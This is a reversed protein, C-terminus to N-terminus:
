KTNASIQQQMSEFYSKDTSVLKLVDELHIEGTKETLNSYIQQMLRFDQITDVTFRMEKEPLVIQPSLWKIKYYDPNDYVFNTVHELYKAENTNNFIDTLTSLTILEAWFGFHTKISPKGNILFSVYDFSTENTENILQQMEKMDLFPNDSCIRIITKLKFKAAADIFRLLVNTEDGRFLGINWNYAIKVLNDDAANNTTALIIQQEPFYKKLKEIIIDLITKDKYFPLLVKNYLRTSSTRAQIIFGTNGNNM